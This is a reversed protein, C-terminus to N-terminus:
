AAPVAQPEGAADEKTLKKPDLFHPVLKGCVGGIAAAPLLAFSGMVLTIGAVIIVVVIWKPNAVFITAALIGALGGAATQGNFQLAAAAGIGAGAFMAPFFPGGRFGIGLSIAYAILKMFVTGLMLGVGGLLTLQKISQEGSTLVMIVSQDTMSQYIVAVIGVVVGGAILQWLVAKDGGRARTLSVAAFQTVAIAIATLAGAVLAIWLDAVAFTYGPALSMSGSRLPDVLLACIGALAGLGAAKKDVPGRTMSIGAGIASGTSVLAVEPGLVLGGALTAIISLLVFPYARPMVPEASIGQLPSHGDAVRRFLFVLIAALIPLGVIYYIPFDNPGFAKNPLDIWIQEVMWTIAEYVIYAGVLSLVAILLMMVPPTKPQAAAPAQDQATM